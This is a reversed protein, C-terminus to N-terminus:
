LLINNCYFLNVHMRNETDLHLIKKFCEVRGGFYYNFGWHKKTEFYLRDEAIIQYNFRIFNDELHKSAKQWENWRRDSILIDNINRFLEVPLKNLNNTFEM